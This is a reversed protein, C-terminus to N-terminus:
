PKSRRPSRPCHPQRDLPRNFSSQALRAENADSLTLRKVMQRFGMFYRKASRILLCAEWDRLSVLDKLHVFGELIAPTPSSFTASASGAGPLPLNMPLSAVNSTAASSENSMPRHQAAEDELRFCKSTQGTERPAAILAVGTLRNKNQM